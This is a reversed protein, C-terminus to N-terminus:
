KKKAKKKAKKKTKTTVKPITRTDAEFDQLGLHCQKAWATILARLSELCAASIKGTIILSIATTGSAATINASVDEGM